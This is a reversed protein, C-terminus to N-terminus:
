VAAAARPFLAAMPCMVVGDVTKVLVEASPGRALAVERWHVARGDPLVVEGDLRVPGGADLRLLGGLLRDLIGPEAIPWILDLDSGPALYPLGTAREWLLAGYVRPVTGLTAGLDLLAAIVDQWAPPAASAADALLVPPLVAVADSPLVITVRRKGHSPPLPLAAPVLDAGDRRLRRRVILPYGWGAWGAVLPVDVLDSHASLMTDWASPAVRLLDHRRLMAADARTVLSGDAM